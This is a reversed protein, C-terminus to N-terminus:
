YRVLCAVSESALESNTTMTKNERREGGTADVMHDHKREQNYYRENMDRSRYEGRGETM